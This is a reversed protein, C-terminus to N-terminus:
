GAIVRDTFDKVDIPPPTNEYLKRYLEKLEEEDPEYGLVDVVIAICYGDKFLAASRVVQLFMEPAKSILRANALEEHKPLINGGVKGIYNGDNQIIIDRIANSERYTWKGKTFNM